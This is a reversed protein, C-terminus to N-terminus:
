ALDLALTESKAGSVCIMMVNGNARDSQTLVSDRHDPCGRLVRTECAGCLGERCSYEVDVNAELLVDLLAKGAPVFLMRGSRALEVTYGTQPSAAVASNAAFREIHVNGIGCAACAAEFASLMPGPGCCYAHVREHQQVLFAALDFARGEHEDDFHLRVNGGLADLEDLFAAQARSRACYVLQVDRGQERLRRYMCLMPTIGIGGAVLVTSVAEEDLAFNNRPKSIPLTSGCRLQEHVYRSGGRSKEDDLVGIVYRAHEDPSNVLSYSRTIGNPLHLDIHAGPAFPPFATGEVPVLEISLVREAEHRITRVRARLNTGASARRASDAVRQEDM